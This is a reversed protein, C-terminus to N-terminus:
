WGTYPFHKPVVDVTQREHVPLDLLNKPVVSYTWTVFDDSDTSRPWNKVFAKAQEETSFYCAVHTSHDSKSPTALIGYVVSPTQVDDKNDQLRPTNMHVVGLKKSEDTERWLDGNGSKFTDFMRVFEHWKDNTMSGLQATIRRHDADRKRREYTPIFDQDEKPTRGFILVIGVEDSPHLLNPLTLARWAEATHGDVIYRQIRKAMKLHNKTNKVEIMSPFGIPVFTLGDFSSKWEKQEIMGNTRILFTCNYSPCTKWKPPVFFGLAITVTKSDGVKGDVFAMTQQHSPRCIGCCLAKGISQHCACQCDIEMKIDDKTDTPQSTTAVIEDMKQRKVIKKAAVGAVRVNLKRKARSKAVSERRKNAKALAAVWEKTKVRHCEPHGCHIHSAMYALDDASYVGPETTVFFRANERGGDWRAMEVGHENMIITPAGVHLCQETHWGKPLRTQNPAAIVQIGLKTLQDEIGVTGFACCDKWEQSRIQDIDSM